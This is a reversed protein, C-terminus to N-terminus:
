KEELNVGGMENIGLLLHVNRLYCCGHLFIVEFDLNDTSSIASSATRREIALQAHLSGLIDGFEEHLSTHRLFLHTTDALSTYVDILWIGGITM